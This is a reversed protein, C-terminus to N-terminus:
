GEASRWVAVLDLPGGKYDIHRDSIFGVLEDDVLDKVELLCLLAARLILDWSKVVM